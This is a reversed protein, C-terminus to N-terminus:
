AEDWEKGDEEWYVENVSVHEGCTACFTKTYQNPDRAVSEAIDSRMTTSNGCKEHIYTHRVPQVFEGDDTTPYNEFQGDDLRDGYDFNEPPPDDSM